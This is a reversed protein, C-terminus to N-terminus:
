SIVMGTTLQLSRKKGASDDWFVTVTVHQYADSISLGNVPKPAYTKWEIAYDDRDDRSDGKQSESIKDRRGKKGIADLAVKLSKPSLYECSQM